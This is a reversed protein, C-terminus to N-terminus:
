LDLAGCKTMEVLYATVARDPHLWVSTGAQEAFAADLPSLLAEGGGTEIRLEGGACLLAWPNARVALSRPANLSLRTVSHKYRARRAMVNLDLIPGDLLRAWTPADGPFSYPPSTPTLSVFPAGAVALEIGCGSLVTLTRDVGSFCSFPGDSEVKATSVRWDFDGLGAGEPSVCIETTEGGGNKWPTIKRDCARLIRM